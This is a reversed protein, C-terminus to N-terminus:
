GIYIDDVSKPKSDVGASVDGTLESNIVGVVIVPKDVNASGEVPKLNVEKAKDEAKPLDLNRLFKRLDAMRNEWGKKFAYFKPNRSILYFYHQDRMDLFKRLDGGCNRLWTVARTVGCNVAADFLAVAVPLPHNPCGAADWYSKRYIQKVLEDPISKMPGNYGHATATRKTIGKMTEGGPDDPHNVYGGEWKATFSYAIDFNTM